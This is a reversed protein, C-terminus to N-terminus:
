ILAVDTEEFYCTSSLSDDLFFAGAVTTQYQQGSFLHADFSYQMLSSSITTLSETMAVNCSLATPQDDCMAASTAMIHSLILNSNNATSITVTVKAPPSRPYLVSVRGTAITDFGTVQSAGVKKYIVNPDLCSMDMTAVQLLVARTTNDYVNVIAGIPLTQWENFVYFDEGSKRAGAYLIDNSTADTVIIYVAEQSGQPPPGSNFDTCASFSTASPCPGGHYVLEFLRPSGSCTALPSFEGTYQFDFNLNSCKEYQLERQGPPSQQNSIFSPLTPLNVNKNRSTGVIHSNSSAVAFVGLMLLGVAAAVKYLPSKARGCETMQGGIIGEDKKLFSHFDDHHDHDEVELELFHGRASHHNTCSM